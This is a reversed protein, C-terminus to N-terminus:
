RITQDNPHFKSSYRTLLVSLRKINWCSRPEVPLQNRLCDKSYHDCISSQLCNCAEHTWGDTQLLLASKNGSCRSTISCSAIGLSSVCTLLSACLIFLYIFLYRTKEFYNTEALRIVCSIVGVKCNLVHKSFNSRCGNLFHDLWYLSSVLSYGSFLWLFFIITAYNSTSEYGLKLRNM